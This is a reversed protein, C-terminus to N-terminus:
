DGAAFDIWSVTAPSGQEILDDTTYVDDVEIRIVPPLAAGVRIDWVPLQPAASRISDAGMTTAMSWVEEPTVARGRLLGARIAERMEAFMDIPGSSAPSDLGLGVAIGFDLM